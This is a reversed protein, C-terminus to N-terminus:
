KNKSVSNRVSSPAKLHSAPSSQPDGTEVRGACPRYAGRGHAHPSQADSSQDKHEGLLCSIWRWQGVIGVKLPPLRFTKITTSV